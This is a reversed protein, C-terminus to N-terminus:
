LLLEKLHGRTLTRVVHIKKAEGVILFCLNVNDDTAMGGTLQLLHFFIM